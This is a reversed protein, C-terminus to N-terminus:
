RLGRNPAKPGNHRAKRGARMGMRAGATAAVSL